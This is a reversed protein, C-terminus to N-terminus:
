DNEEEQSKNKIKKYLLDRENYKNLKKKLLIKGIQFDELLINIKNMKKKELKRKFINEKNLSNIDELYLQYENFLNPNKVKKEYEKRNSYALLDSIKFTLEKKFEEYKKKELFKYKDDFDDEDIKSNKHENLLNEINFNNKDSKDNIINKNIDHNQHIFSKFNKEVNKGKNIGFKCKKILINTKSIRKVKSTSIFSKSDNIHLPKIKIKHLKINASNNLNKNLSENIKESSANILSSNFLFSNNKKLLSKPQLLIKKGLNNKKRKLLEIDNIKNNKMTKSFPSDKNKSNEIIKLINSFNKKFANKFILNYYPVGKSSKFLDSIIGKFLPNKSYMNYIYKKDKNIMEHFTYKERREYRASNNLIHFIEFKKHNFNPTFESNLM